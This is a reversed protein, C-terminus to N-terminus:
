SRDRQVDAILEITLPTVKGAWEIIAERMREVGKNFRELREFDHSREFEAKSRNLEDTFQQRLTSLQDIVLKEIAGISQQPHLPLRLAEATQRDMPLYTINWDDYPMLRMIAMLWDGLPTNYVGESFLFFPRVNNVGHKALLDAELRTRREDQADLSQRVLLDIAARDPLINAPDNIGFGVTRFLEGYRAFDAEGFVRRRGDSDVPSAAPKSEPAPLQEVRLRTADGL